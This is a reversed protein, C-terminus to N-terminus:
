LVTYSAGLGQLVSSRWAECINLHEFVRLPSLQKKLIGLREPITQTCCVLLSEVYALTAVLGEAEHTNVMTILRCKIVAM